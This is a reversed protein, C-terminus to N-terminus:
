RRWRHPPRVCTRVRPHTPARRFVPYRQPFPAHANCPQATHTHTHVEAMQLPLIDEKKKFTKKLVQERVCM